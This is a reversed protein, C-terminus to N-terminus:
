PANQFPLILVAADDDLLELPETAGAIPRALAISQILIVRACDLSNKNIKVVFTQDVATAPHDVPIRRRLGRERILLDDGLRLFSIEIENAILDDFFRTTKEFDCGRPRFRDHGVRRHSKM